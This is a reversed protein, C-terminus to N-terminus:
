VENEINMQSIDHVWLGVSMAEGQAGTPALLFSNSGDMDILAIFVLTIQARVPQGRLIIEITTLGCIQQRDKINKRTVSQM